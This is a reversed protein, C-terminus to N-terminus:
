CGMVIDNFQAAVEESQTVMTQSIDWFLATAAESLIMYDNRLESVDIDTADARAAATALARADKEATQLRPVLRILWQAANEITTTRREISQNNYVVEWNAPEYIDL